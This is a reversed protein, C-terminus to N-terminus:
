EATGQYTSRRFTSVTKPIHVSSRRLQRTVSAVWSDVLWVGTQGSRLGEFADVVAVTIGERTITSVRVPLQCDDRDLVAKAMECALLQAALQGGEPVPVGATYTVSWTNPQGPPAALDQCIPWRGGDTRILLNYNDVRYSEADIIDSGIVVEQVSHIPGPLRLSWLGDCDCLGDCSGCSLNRWVGNILAPQFPGLGAIPVGSEGQYTARGGCNQRCPRVTVECLGYKRDTWNWLHAVALAVVADRIPTDPEGEGDVDDLLDLEDCDGLLPWDCPETRISM